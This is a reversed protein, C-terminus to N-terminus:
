VAGADVKVTVKRAPADGVSRAPELRAAIDPLKQLKTIGAIVAVHKTEVKCARLAAARTIKKETVLDDLITRLLEADWTVTGATPSPASVRVGRSRQTWEGEADMRSIMEDGLAREVSRLHDLMDGVALKTRGLVAAITTAPADTLAFMEGSDPDVIAIGDSAQKVLELDPNAM